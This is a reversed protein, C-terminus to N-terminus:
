INKVMKKVSDSFTQPANMLHTKLNGFFNMVTQADAGKYYLVGAAAAIAATGTVAMTCWPHKKAITAIKTFVGNKYLVYSITGVTLIGVAGIGYLVAQNELLPAFSITDFKPLKWRSEDSALTTKGQLQIEPTSDIVVKPTTESQASVPKIFEQARKVMDSETISKTSKRIAGFITDIDYRAPLTGREALEAVTIEAAQDMASASLTALSLLVISVVSAKKTWVGHHKM